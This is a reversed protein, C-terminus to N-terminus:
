PSHVDTLLPQGTLFRYLNVSRMIFGFRRRATTGDNMQAYADIERQVRGTDTNAKRALAAEARAPASNRVRANALAEDITGGQALTHNMSRNWNRDLWSNFIWEQGEQSRLAIRMYTRFLQWSHPNMHKKNDWVLCNERSVRPHEEDANFARGFLDANIAAADCLGSARIQDYQIRNHLYIGPDAFKLFEAKETLSTPHTIFREAVFEVFHGLEESDVHSIGIGGLDYSMVHKGQKANSNSAWHRNCPDPLEREDIGTIGWESVGVTLALLGLNRKATADDTNSLYSDVLAKYFSIPISEDRANDDATPSWQAHSMLEGLVPNSWGATAPTAPVAADAGM